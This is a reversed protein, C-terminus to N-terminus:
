LRVRPRGRIVQDTWRMALSLSYRTSRLRRATRTPITDRTRSDLTEFEEVLKIGYDREAQRGTEIQAFLAAAHTETRAVTQSRYPSFSTVGQIARAIDDEPETTSAAKSPMWCTM